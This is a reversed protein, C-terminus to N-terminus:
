AVIAAIGNASEPLRESLDLIDSGMQQFQQPTDFSVSRKVGAMSTEFGIAAKVGAILPETFANGKIMEGVNIKGLGSNGLREQFGKVNTRITALTPSLQDVGTILTRITDAMVGGAPDPQHATGALDM